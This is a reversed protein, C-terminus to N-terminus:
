RLASAVSSSSSQCAVRGPSGAVRVGLGAWFAGTGAGLRGGSSVRAVAGVALVDFVWRRGDLRVKFRCSCDMGSLVGLVTLVALVASSAVVIWVSWAPLM